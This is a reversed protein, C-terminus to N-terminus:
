RRAKGRRMVRDIQTKVICLEAASSMPSWVFQSNFYRADRSHAMSFVWSWGIFAAKEAEQRAKM